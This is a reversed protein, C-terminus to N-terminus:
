GGVMARWGTRKLACSRSLITTRREWRRCLPPVTLPLRPMPRWPARAGASTRADTARRCSWKMSEDKWFSWACTAGIAWLVIIVRFFLSLWSARMLANHGSDWGNRYGISEAESYRRLFDPIM